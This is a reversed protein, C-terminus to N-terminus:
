LFPASVFRGGESVWVLSLHLDVLVERAVPQRHAYTFGPCPKDQAQRRVSDVGVVDRQLEELLDGRARERCHGIVLGCTWIGGL